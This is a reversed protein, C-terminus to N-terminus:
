GLQRSETPEVRRIWNPSTGTVVGSAMDVRSTTQTEQM